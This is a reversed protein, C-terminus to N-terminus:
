DGKKWEDIGQKRSDKLEKLRQQFVDQFKEESASNKNTAYKGKVSEWLEVVFPAPAAIEREEINKRFLEIESPDTIEKLLTIDEGVGVLYFRSGIELVQVSKQQGLSIGGHNQIMRNKQYNLNRKNVFKLLAYLLAVVFLLAFVMKLYDWLSLSVTGSDSPKGDAPSDSRDTGTNTRNSDESNPAKKDFLDSVPANSSAVAIHGPQLVILLQLVTLLVFLKKIM